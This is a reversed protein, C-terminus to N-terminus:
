QLKEKNVDHEVRNLLVSLDQIRQMYRIMKVAYIELSGRNEAFYLNTFTVMDHLIRDYAKEFEARYKQFDGHTLCAQAVKISENLAEVAQFQAKDQEQIEYSDEFRHM